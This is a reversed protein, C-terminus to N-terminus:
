FLPTESYMSKRGYEDTVEHTQMKIRSNPIVLECSIRTQCSIISIELGNVSTTPPHNFHFNFNYEITKDLKDFKIDDMQYFVKNDIIKQIGNKFSIDFKNYVEKLKNGNIVCIPLSDTVPNAIKKYYKKVKGYLNSMRLDPLKKCKDSYFILMTIHPVHFRNVGNSSNLEHNINNFNLSKKIAEKIRKGENGKDLTHSKIEYILDVINMIKKPNNQIVDFSISCPINQNQSIISVDKFMEPYVYFDNSKYKHMLYLTGLRQYYRGSDGDELLKNLNSPM